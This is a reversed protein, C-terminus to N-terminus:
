EHSLMITFLDEWLPLINSWDFQEAKKRANESIKGALGPETIIRHVAAAMAKPDDPPVLLADVEDDLLYPIGGVNTSVVCLGCAMAEIVSIPTNDINTTNIFIDGTNLWAPVDKKPIRGAINLHPLVRFNSASRMAKELSGDGTDGGGMVLQCQPYQNLLSALVEIALPANYIQHFARLWMMLPNPRKRRTYSYKSIDIANPIVAIDKILSSLGAALYMSPSIVATSSLLLNKVRNLHKRSFFPLDGGRLVLFYTKKLRRLFYAVVEAWIFAKGSFVDILASDYNKREKIATNVM